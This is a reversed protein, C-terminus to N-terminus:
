SALEDFQILYEGRLMTCIYNIRELASTSVTADIPISFNKLIVLFEEPQSDEFTSMNINYTESTATALNIRM